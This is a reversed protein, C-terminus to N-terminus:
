VTPAEHPSHDRLDRLVGHKGHQLDNGEVERQVSQVRPKTTPGRTTSGKNPHHEFQHILKQVAQKRIHDHEQVASLPLGLIRFDTEGRCTERYTEGHKDSHDFSKRADSSTTDQREYNLNPKLVVRQPAVHSQYTKSYLDEGSKM